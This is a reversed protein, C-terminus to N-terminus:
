PELTPMTACSAGNVVHRYSGGPPSLILLSHVVDACRHMGRIDAVPQTRRELAGSEGCGASRREGRRDRLRCARWDTTKMRHRHVPHHPDPGPSAAQMGALTHSPYAADEEDDGSRVTTSTTTGDGKDCCTRLGCGQKREGNGISDLDLVGM